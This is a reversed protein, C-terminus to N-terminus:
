CARLRDLQGPTVSLLNAHYGGRVEDVVVLSYCDIPHVQLRRVAEGHDSLRLGQGLRHLERLAHDVRDGAVTAGRRHRLMLLQDDVDHVLRRRRLVSARGRVVVRASRPPITYGSSRLYVASCSHTRLGPWAWPLTRMPM